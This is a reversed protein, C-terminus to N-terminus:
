LEKRTMSIGEVAAAADDVISNAAADEVNVEEDPDGSSAACVEIKGPAAV